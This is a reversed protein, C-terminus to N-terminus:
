PRTAPMRCRRCARELQRAARGEGESNAAGPASESAALRECHLCASKFFRPHMHADGEM